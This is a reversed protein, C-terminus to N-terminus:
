KKPVMEWLDYLKFRTMPPLQQAADYWAKLTSVTVPTLCPSRAKYFEIIGDFTIDTPGHEILKALLTAAVDSKCMTRHTLHIWARVSAIARKKAKVHDCFDDYDSTSDAAMSASVWAQQQLYTDWIRQVDGFVSHSKDIAVLMDIYLGQFDPSRLMADWLMDVYMGLFEPRLSSQCQTIIAQANQLSLKNILALFDKRAIAERSLERNGIRPKEVHGDNHRLNRPPCKKTDERFCSYQKVLGLAIASM